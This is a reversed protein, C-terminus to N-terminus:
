SSFLAMFVLAQSGCLGVLAEGLFIWRFNIDAVAVVVVVSQFFCSGAVGLVLCPKRGIKDSLAGM